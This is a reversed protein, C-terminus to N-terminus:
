LPHVLWVTGPTQWMMKNLSNAVSFALWAQIFNRRLKPGVDADGQTGVSALKSLYIVKIGTNKMDNHVQKSTTFVCFKNKNIGARGASSISNLFLELDEADDVLCGVVVKGKGYRPADNVANQVYDSHLFFDLLLARAAAYAKETPLVRGELSNAALAFSGDQQREAHLM